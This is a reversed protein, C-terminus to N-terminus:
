SCFAKIGWKTPKNKIYQKFSLRGKFPIMAEDITVPQHMSYESEFKPLVSDLFPRVKFLKDHGPQGAPIQQSSDALHLFRFIQQFRNRSMISSIGVTAIIPHKVQWYMELRPLRVIGMLILLGVFAKMEPVIVDEWPRAHPTHSINELAYRNTETVMLDWVEDTFFRCFLERPTADSGLSTIPGPTRRYTYCLAESEAKKWKIMDIGDIVGTGSRTRGTGRGRGVGHGRRAGQVGGGGTARGRGM